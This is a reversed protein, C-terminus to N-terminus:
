PILFKTPRLAGLNMRTTRHGGKTVPSIILYSEASDAAAPSPPLFASTGLMHRKILGQDTAVVKAPYSTHVTGQHGSRQSCTLLLVLLTSHHDALGCNDPSELIVVPIHGYSFIIIHSIHKLQLAEGQVTYLMSNAM